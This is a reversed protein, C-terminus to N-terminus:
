ATTLILISLIVEDTLVYKQKKGRWLFLASIVGIVIAVEVSVAFVSDQTHLLCYFLCLFQFLVFVTSILRSNVSFVRSRWSCTIVNPLLYLVKAFLCNSSSM